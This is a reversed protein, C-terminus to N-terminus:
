MAGGVTDKALWHLIGFFAFAYRVGVVHGTLFDTRIPVSHAVDIDVVAKASLYNKPSLSVPLIPSPPIRSDM